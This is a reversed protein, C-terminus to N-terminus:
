RSTAARLRRGCCACAARGSALGAAVRHPHSARQREDEACEHRNHIESLDPMHLQFLHSLTPHHQM